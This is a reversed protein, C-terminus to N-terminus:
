NQKQLISHYTALVLNKGTGDQSTLSSTTLKDGTFEVSYLVYQIAEDIRQQSENASVDLWSDYDGSMTGSNYIYSNGTKKMTIVVNQLANNGTIQITNEDLEVVEIEEVYLDALGRLDRQINDIENYEGIYSYKGAINSVQNTNSIEINQVQIQGNEVWAGNENVTYGDPTTTNTLLWGNTDFYYSEAVGDNNGDIWQWSNQAYTGDGNDYWWKDQNTDKGTQWTGAFATSSLLTSIVATAFLM